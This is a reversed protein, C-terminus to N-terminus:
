DGEVPAASDKLRRWLEDLHALPEPSGATADRARPLIEIELGLADLVRLVPDLEARAKGSEFTTVWWRSVGAREALAAQTLSASLRHSRVLLGLQRLTQIPM